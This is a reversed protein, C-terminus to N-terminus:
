EDRTKLYEYNAYINAIQWGMWVMNVPPAIIQNVVTAFEAVSYIRSRPVYVIDYEKLMIDNQIASGELIEKVDIEVGVIRDPEARRIVIVHTTRAGNKFGGVSAIAQMLSLGTEMSLSKPQIVEGVVYVLKKASSHLIVSVEPERLYEVFQQTLTSDLEMPTLGAAMVDGLFPLSIRGDIRVLLQKYTLEPHLPFVIDLKDGVQIIYEPVMTRMGPAAEVFQRLEEKEYMSGESKLLPKNSSCGALVSLLLMLNIAQKAGFM